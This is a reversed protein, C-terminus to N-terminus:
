ALLSGGLHYNFGGFFFFFALVFFLAALFFCILIIAELLDLTRLDTSDLYNDNKLMIVAKAL